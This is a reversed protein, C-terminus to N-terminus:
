FEKLLAYSVRVDLPVYNLLEVYKPIDNVVQCGASWNGIISTRIKLYLNYNSGHVNTSYNGKYVQGIEESRDNNNNDRYYLMEEMQRLCQMKGNHHRVKKGDSKQYANYYFQDAKMVAAGESSFNLWGKKLISAGPHTTCSTVLKFEGGVFLYMKDDFQDPLDDMSRVGILLYKPLIMFRHPNFSPLDRVRDLLQKDTYTSKM